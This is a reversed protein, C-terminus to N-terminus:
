VEDEGYVEFDGTYSAAGCADCRFKTQAAIDFSIVPSGDHEILTLNPGDFIEEDCEVCNILLYFRM